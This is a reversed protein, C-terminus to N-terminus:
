IVGSESDSFDICAWLKQKRTKTSTPNKIPTSNCVLEARFGPVLRQSESPQSPPGPQCRSIANLPPELPLDLGQPKNVTGFIRQFTRTVYDFANKGASGLQRIDSKLGIPKRLSELRIAM